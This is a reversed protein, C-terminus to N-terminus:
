LFVTFSSSSEEGSLGYANMTKATASLATDVDTFGAKALHASQEIMYGLDQVPVSASEASYAAEALMAASMGTESSVRMITGQLDDYQGATGTFLTSAKAMAQEFEGTNAIADGVIKGVAAVKLATKLKGALNSAISQGSKEGAKKSEGSLVDSISGSIGQASPIIQVYATALQTAM